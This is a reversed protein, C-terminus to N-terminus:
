HMYLGMQNSINKLRITKINKLIKGMIYFLLINIMIILINRKILEKKFNM